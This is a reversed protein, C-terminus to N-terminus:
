IACWNTMARSAEEFVIPAFSISYTLFDLISFRKLILVYFINWLSTKYGEPWADAGGKDQEVPEGGWQTAKRSSCDSGAFMDM